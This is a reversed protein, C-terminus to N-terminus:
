FNFLNLFFGVAIVDILIYHIQSHIAIPLEQGSCCSCDVVHIMPAVFGVESDEIPDAFDVEQNEIPGVFDGIMWGVFGFYGVM